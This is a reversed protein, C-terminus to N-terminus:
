RQPAPPMESGSGRDQGPRLGRLRFALVIQAVGFIIAYIGIVTVLGLAGAGPFLFLLVGFIISLIGALILIWENEIERRLQIAAAIELVGTVLAWAAIFYLLVLATMGPWIIALIGFLIGALGELLEAWWRKNEGYSSIGAIVSFIGDVLAYAGFILVLSTLTIGPWVLALIGFLIALIGRILFVWWNRALMTLM